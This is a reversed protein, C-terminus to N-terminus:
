ESQGLHSAPGSLRAGRRTGGASLACQVATGAAGEDELACLAVVRGTAADLEGVDAYNSLIKPEPYRYVGAREKAIRVFPEHNYAEGTANPSVRRARDGARGRQGGGDREHVRV